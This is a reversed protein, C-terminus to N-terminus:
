RTEAWARRGQWVTLKGDARAPRIDFHVFTPYRGIAQIQSEALRARERCVEFLRAVSMGAPPYLDLARGQMHQSASAGGVRRNHEPTRYASGIRIPAGVAARIAEFEAALPVARTERWEQPYPTGDKCALESWSLHRSPGSM